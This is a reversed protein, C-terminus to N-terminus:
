IRAPDVILFVDTMAPEIPLSGHRELQYNLVTLVALVAALIIFAAFCRWPSAFRSKPVERVIGVAEQHESAGGFVTFQSPHPTIM